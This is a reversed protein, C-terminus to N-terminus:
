RSVTRLRWKAAPIRSTFLRREPKARSDRFFDRPDNLHDHERLIAAFVDRFDATLERVGLARRPWEVEGATERRRGANTFSRISPL